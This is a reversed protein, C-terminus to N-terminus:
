LAKRLWSNIFLEVGLSWYLNGILVSVIFILATKRTNRGHEPMFYATTEFSDRTTSLLLFIFLDSKRILTGVFRKVGRKNESWAKVQNIYEYGLWDIKMRSYISLIILNEIAIVPIM